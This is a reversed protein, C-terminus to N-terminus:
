LSEDSHRKRGIRQASSHRRQSRRASDLQAEQLRERAIQQTRHRKTSHAQKYVVYMRQVVTIFAAITLYIFAIVFIWMYHSIGSLFIAALIIVLRDAREAIGVDARMGLGEARARAYPVVSGFILASIGTILGWAQLVGDAHIYFWILVSLFIAADSIRDLTSDLFAGWKTPSGNLRAIQGDLNDFIVVFSILLSGIIFHQTPILWLSLVVSLVTGSITIADASINWKVCLRALPGFVRQALPRGKSSLM